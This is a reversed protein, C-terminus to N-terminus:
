SKRFLRQVVTMRRASHAVSIRATTSKGDLPAMLALLGAALTCVETNDRFKVLADLAAEGVRLSGLM